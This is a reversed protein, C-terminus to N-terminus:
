RRRTAVIPLGLVMGAMSVPLVWEPLALIIMTAKVVIAVPIFALGYLLLTRALRQRPAVAPMASTHEGTALRDLARVLETAHQPRDDPEKALCRMVLASLLSPTESRLSEVV